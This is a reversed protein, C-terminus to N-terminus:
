FSMSLKNSIMIISEVDNLTDNEKFLDGTDMYGFHVEYRINNFLRYIVGVNAEWSADYESGLSSDWSKKTIGFAGHLSLDPTALYDASIAFVNTQSQIEAKGILSSTDLSETIIDSTAGTILLPELNVNPSNDLGESNLSYSTVRYQMHGDLSAACVTTATGALLLLASSYAILKTFM